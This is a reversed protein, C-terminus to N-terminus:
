GTSGDTGRYLDFGEAHRQYITFVANKTLPDDFADFIPRDRWWFHRGHTGPASSLFWSTSSAKFHLVLWSLDEEILSNLENDATFPKGSSGLIERAAFKDQPSIIALVPAMLRAIGREDVMDEFRLIANQIGTVSFGIDPSPRNANDPGNDLRPHDTACLAKGDFGTFNSDFANDLITIGQVEQRNRSARALGAVLDRMVGYLEDRWMEWTIEVALGFPVAEFELSGGLIPEDRTFQSGEDKSPMTGLGSIQQRKIPNWPMDGVNLYLPYELSREKGVDIVVQELDPAILPTFTGRGIPM